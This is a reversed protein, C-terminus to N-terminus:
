IYRTSSDVFDRLMETRKRWESATQFSRRWEDFGKAKIEEQYRDPTEWELGESEVYAPNQATKWLFIPWEAYFGYRNSPKMKLIKKASSPTLIWTTGLIDRTEQFGLVKSTLTNGVGETLTQTEPHTEFARKTRGILVFDNPPSPEALTRLENPYTKIWHLARDLDCYFIRDVNSRTSATLATQYSSIVTDKAKFASYGNDKLLTVTDHHTKPTYAVSASDFL